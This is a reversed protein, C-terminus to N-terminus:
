NMTVYCPKAAYGGVERQWAGMIRWVERPNGAELAAMATKDAWRTRHKRNLGQDEAGVARGRVQLPHGGEADGGESQGADGHKTSDLFEEPAGLNEVYM